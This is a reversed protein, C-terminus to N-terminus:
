DTVNVVVTYVQSDDHKYNANTILFTARYTGVNEYTYSYSRIDQSLNKISVGQDPECSTIKIPDSVLWATKWSYASGTSHIYFGGNAVNNMNWMGSVNATVTGYLLNRIKM